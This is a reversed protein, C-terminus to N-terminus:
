IRKPKSDADILNNRLILNTLTVPTKENFNEIIDSWNRWNRYSPSICSRYSKGDELNKFFLYYFDGGYKSPHKTIKQLEATIANTM